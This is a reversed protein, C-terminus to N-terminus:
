LGLMASWCTGCPLTSERYESGRNDVTAGECERVGCDYEARGTAEEPLGYLGSVGSSLFARLLKRTTRHRACAMSVNDHESLERYGFIGCTAQKSPSRSRTNVSMVFEPRLYDYRDTEVCRKIDRIETQHLQSMRSAAM